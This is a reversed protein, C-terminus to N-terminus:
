LRLYSRCTQAKAAVEAPSPDEQAVTRVAQDARRGAQAYNVNGARRMVASAALRTGREFESQDILGAERQIYLDIYIYAYCYLRKDATSVADLDVAGAVSPAAVAISLALALARM